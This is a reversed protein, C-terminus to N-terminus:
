AVRIECFLSSADVEDIRPTASLPQCLATFEDPNITSAAFGDKCVIAGNRTQDRDIEGVLGRSAQIEFWELRAEWFSEAYSSFLVTGGPRTIRMCQRILEGRDVKFASIGDQICVVVDFTGDRFAHSAADMALLHCNGIVVIEASALEISEISLDAGIVTRAAESLRPLVRGYGCGLDLVIDSPDIRSCVHEIEARLYQRIRPTAVDYAQQLRAASLKRQYYGESAKM